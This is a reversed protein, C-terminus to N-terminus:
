NLKEFIEQAVEKPSLHSTQIIPVEHQKAEERLISSFNVNDDIFQQVTKGSVREITEISEPTQYRNQLRNKITEENADLLIFGVVPNDGIESPRAFGCIITKIGKTANKLGLEIWHKTEDIRWQRGVNDPVGRADFDHIEFGIGLLSKLPELVATKGVGNVGTIFYISKM